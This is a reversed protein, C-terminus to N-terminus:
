LAFEFQRALKDALRWACLCSRVEEPRDDHQRLKLHHPSHIMHVPAVEEFGCGDGCGASWRREACKGGAARCEGSSRLRGCVGDDKEPHRAAHSRRLGEVGLAIFRELDAQGGLPNERRKGRDVGYDIVDFEGLTEFVDRLHDVAACEDARVDHGIEAVNEVRTMLIMPVGPVHRRLGNRRRVHPRPNRFEEARAVGGNGREDVDALPEFADALLLFELREM